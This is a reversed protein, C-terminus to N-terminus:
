SGERESCSLLVMCRTLKLAHAREAAGSRSRGRKAAPPGPRRMQWRLLTASRACQSQAHGPHAHCMLCMDSM